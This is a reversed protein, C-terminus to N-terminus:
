KQKREKTKLRKFDTLRCRGKQEKIVRSEGAREARSGM